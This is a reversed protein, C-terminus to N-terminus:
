APREEGYLYHDLNSALDEPAESDFGEINFLPDQTIDFDEELAPLQDIWEYILAQISKGAEEAAKKLRQYDAEVLQITLTEMNEEKLKGIV